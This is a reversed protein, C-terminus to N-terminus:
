KSTEAISSTTVVLVLNNKVKRSVIDNSSKIIQNILAFFTIVTLKTNSVQVSRFKLTDFIKARVNIQM